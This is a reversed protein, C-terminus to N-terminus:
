RSLRTHDPIVAGSELVVDWGVEADSGVRVDAALVCGQLAAGPGVEVREWLVADEVRAGSGIRCGAGIVARPGVRAGAEVRAGAGVVAPAVVAGAAVAADAALWAGDRREGPPALPTRVRGELLDVQADRYAAPTGIDRWYAPGIWGFCPTEDAILQPFVEREISVPRGSPIGRLLAADMLYVGANITDTTIEAATEPKERFGRLRGDPAVEVLGYQRPDPVRTLFLTARAGHTDHFRRMATLDVDTLVDGNLVFFPRSGAAGAAEIAYRVGGGTGLPEPEVVYTLHVGLGGADGVAARVDDVRYSCSLIVDNVDHQRLLALQYALFPRNLLPVVPKARALTLPRLRTGFGGALIVAGAATV